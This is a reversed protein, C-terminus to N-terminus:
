ATEGSARNERGSAGPDEVVVCRELPEEETIVDGDLVLSSASM